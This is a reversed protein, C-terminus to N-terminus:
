VHSILKRTFDRSATRASKLIESKNKLYNLTIQLCLLFITSAITYERLKICFTIFCIIFFKRGLFYHYILNNDFYILIYSYFRFQIILFYYYSFVFYYNIIYIPYIVTRRVYICNNIKVVFFCDRGNRCTKFICLLNIKITQEQFNRKFDWKCDVKRTFNM